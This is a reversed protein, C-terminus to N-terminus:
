AGRACGAPFIVGLRGAVAGGEEVRSELGFSVGPDKVWLDKGLFWQRTAWVGSNEQPAPQLWRVGHPKGHLFGWVRSHNSGRAPFEPMESTKRSIHSEVFRWRMQRTGYTPNFTATMLLPVPLSPYARTPVPAGPEGFRVQASFSPAFGWRSSEAMRHVTSTISLVVPTHQVQRSGRRAMAYCRLRSARNARAAAGAAGSAPRMRLIRSVTHAVGAEWYRWGRSPGNGNSAAARSFRLWV